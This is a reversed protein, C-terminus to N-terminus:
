YRSAFLKQFNLLFIYIQSSIHTAFHIDVDVLGLRPCAKFMKFGLHLPLVMSIIHTIYSNTSSFVKLSLVGCAQWVGELDFSRGTHLALCLRLGLIRGETAGALLGLLGLLGMHIHIIGLVCSGWLRLM